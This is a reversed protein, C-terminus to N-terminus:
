EDTSQLSKRICYSLRPFPPMHFAARHLRVEKYASSKRQRHLPEPKFKQEIALKIFDEREVSMEKQMAKIQRKRKDRAKQKLEYESLERKEKGKKKIIANRAFSFSSPYWIDNVSKYSSSFIGSTFVLFLIRFSDVLELLRACLALIAYSSILRLSCSFAYILSQLGLDLMMQFGQAQEYITLDNRQMNEELM